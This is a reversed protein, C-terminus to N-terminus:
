ITSTKAKTRYTEFKIKRTLLKIRFDCYDFGLLEKLFESKEKLEINNFIQSRTNEM